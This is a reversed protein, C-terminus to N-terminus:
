GNLRAWETAMRHPLAMGNLKAWEDASYADRSANRRPFTIGDYYGVTEGTPLTVYWEYKKQYVSYGLGLQSAAQNMRTKTTATTWGGSRLTVYDGDVAVVDTSHYRVRTVGEGTTVKTAHTGIQHMNAM